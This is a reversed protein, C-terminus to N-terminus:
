SCTCKHWQSTRTELYPGHERIILVLVIVSSFPFSFFDIKTQKPQFLCSIYLFNQQFSDVFLLDATKKEDRGSYGPSAHESNVDCICKAGVKVRLSVPNMDLIYM